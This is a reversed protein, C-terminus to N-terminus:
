ESDEGTYGIHVVAPRSYPGLTNHAEVYIEYPSYVDGYNIEKQNEQWDYIEHKTTKGDKKITLVYKFNDANHQIEPM